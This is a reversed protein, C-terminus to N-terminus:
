PLPVKIFVIVQHKTTQYFGESGEESRRVGESGCAAFNNPRSVLNALEVNIPEHALPQPSENHLARDGHEGILSLERKYVVRDKHRLQINEQALHKQVAKKVKHDKMAAVLQTRSWKGQTRLFEVLGNQVLQLIRGIKRHTLKHTLEIVKKNNPSRTDRAKHQTVNQTM